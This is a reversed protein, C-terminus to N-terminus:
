KEIAQRLITEIEFSDDYVEYVWLEYPTQVLKYNKLWLFRILARIEMKFSIVAATAM